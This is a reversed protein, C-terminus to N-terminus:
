DVLGTRYKQAETELEPSLEVRPINKWLEELRYFHRQPEYFLHVVVNGYDLLVWDGNEYGATHIPREGLTTLSQEIKDAMGQVHRNSTGSAIVFFDAVPSETGFDLGIVDHGRQEIAVKLAERVIESSDIHATHSPSPITIKAPKM